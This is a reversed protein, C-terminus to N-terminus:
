GLLGREALDGVFRAVDARAVDEAIGYTDVLVTVLDAETRPEGLQEWLMRASGNLKLYVSKRLDLIVVDDGVVHWTLDDQRLQVNVAKGTRM